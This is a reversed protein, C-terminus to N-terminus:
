ATRWIAYINPVSTRRREDVKIFGKEDVAIGAKELGLNRSSPRRGVAILVREFTAKPEAVEEGELTAKIGGSVEELKAVKTSLHIQQFQRQLRQYLPRVLDSDVGPLLSGTLEVVTVKSGLAAYM